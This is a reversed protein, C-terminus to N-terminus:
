GRMTTRTGPSRCASGKITYAIFCTPRDDRVAHMAELVTEIDTGGLNTMLRHLADDDHRDLLEKLGDTRGPRAEAARALGARGQLDAGFVPQEPLRRDVPAARRRGRQRFAEQLKKGYKLTVVRWDMSHFVGDIRGFLRDSIVNDLSQRNYDIIWWLNRVDHKWAELMAEFVNGEDFEADGVLAVMRGPPEDIPGMRKLRLYDQVLAAFATM